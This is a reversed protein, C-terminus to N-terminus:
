AFTSNNLLEVSNEIKLDLDIYNQLTKIHVEINNKYNLFAQEKTKGYGAEVDLFDSEYIKHSRHKGKGDNFHELM